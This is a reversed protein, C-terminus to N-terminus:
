DILIGKKMVKRDQTHLAGICLKHPGACLCILSGQRDKFAWLCRDLNADGRM